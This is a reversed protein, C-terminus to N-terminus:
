NKRHEHECLDHNGLVELIRCDEIVGGPCQQLMAQLEARLQKLQRIKRDVQRLHQRTLQDVDRCSQQQNQQLSLLARISDLDFGLDRSHRIFELTKRHEEQYRRQNGQTRTAGPLLGIQEYYRITQTKCQALKALEGISYVEM